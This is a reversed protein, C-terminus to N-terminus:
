ADTDGSHFEHITGAEDALRLQGDSGLGAFHGTFVTDGERRTLLTGRLPGFQEWKTRIMEVQEDLLADYWEEWRGLIAALLVERWPFASIEAAISTARERIDGPFDLPSTSVNIGVGVIAISQDNVTLRQGLIGAVKKGNVLVDNPWKLRVNKGLGLSGRLLEAVAIAPLMSIFGAGHAKEQVRLMVSFLLATGPTDHWTRQYRGRGVTQHDTAVVAGSMTFQAINEALWRNTSEIEDFWIFERGFRRTALHRQFLKTDWSM